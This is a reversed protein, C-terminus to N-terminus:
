GAIPAEERPTLMESHGSELMDLWAHHAREIETALSEDPSVLARPNLHQLALRFTGEYGGVWYLAQDGQASLQVRCQADAPRLRGQDTLLAMRGSVLNVVGAREKHTVGWQFPTFLSLGALICDDGLIRPSFVRGNYRRTVSAHTTVHTHGGRNSGPVQPLLYCLEMRTEHAEWEFEHKTIAIEREDNHAHAVAHFPIHPRDFKPAQRFLQDTESLVNLEILGNPADIALTQNDLFEFRTMHIPSLWRGLKHKRPLEQFSPAAQVLMGLTEPGSGGGMELEVAHRERWPFVSFIQVATVNPYYLAVWRGDPSTVVEDPRAALKAKAEVKGTALNWIHLKCEGEWDRMDMHRRAPRATVLVVRDNGLPAIHELHAIRTQGVVKGTTADWAMVTHRYTPAEEDWDWDEDLAADVHSIIVRGDASFEMDPPFLNDLKTYLHVLRPPVECDIVDLLADRTATQTLWQGAEILMPEPARLADSPNQGALLSLLEWEAVAYESSGSDSEIDVIRTRSCGLRRALEQQTLRARERLQRAQARLSKQRAALYDPVM